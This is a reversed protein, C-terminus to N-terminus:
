EEAEESILETMDMQNEFVEDNEKPLIEENTEPIIMEDAAKEEVIEEKAAEYEKESEVRCVVQWLESLYGGKFGFPAKLKEPFYTCKAKIIKM